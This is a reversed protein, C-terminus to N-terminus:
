GFFFAPTECVCYVNLNALLHEATTSNEFLSPLALNSDPDHAPVSLHMSLSALTLAVISVFIIIFDNNDVTFNPEECYLQAVKTLIAFIYPKSHEAFSVCSPTFSFNDSMQQALQMGGFGVVGFGFPM